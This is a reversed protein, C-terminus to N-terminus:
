TCELTHNQAFKITAHADMGSENGGQTLNYKTPTVTVGATGTTVVEKHKSIGHSNTEFKVTATNASAGCAPSIITGISGNGLVEFGLFSCSFTAFAENAPKTVLVGPKHAQGAAGPITVLEFPLTKTTISGCGITGFATHATCNGSFVLNLTGATSSAWKATGHVKECTITNGNTSSLSSAPGEVTSDVAPKPVVHLPADTASAVAPVSLAVASIAMMAFLMIKKSM